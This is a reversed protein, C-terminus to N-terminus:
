LLGGGGLGRLLGGRLFGSRGLLVAARDGVWEAVAGRGLLLGLLVGADDVRELPRNAHHSLVRTRSPRRTKPYERVRNQPAGHGASCRSHLLTPSLASRRRQM